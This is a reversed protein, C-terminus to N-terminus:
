LPYLLYKERLQKFREVEEAWSAKIEEADRGEAIMARVRENGILKDFFSSFFRSEGRMGRNRYAEIVYQLNVGQEIAEDDSVGGLDRGYCKQGMLPPNKAGAMSRPTFSYSCGEMKPHGYMEFPRETGRGLSMVTGEFLCTSPYLYVAKMSKLNPSPAVPLKYRTSHTYGECEVVKLDLGKDGKLWGEGVIMRAMEGLTLGHLVPVPLRGVGSALKMDLVPGDVSMGNPNPRDLVVFEKGADSAANMVDLMTIYYTYFRLGVDQMDFVVVDVEEMAERAPDKQKRGGYLSVIKIGTKADKGGDVHEGADATGRFGHEPSMILRVDVGNRLLVDLTHEAGVMGTHNSLLAVRKGELMDMYAGTREAGVRVEAM